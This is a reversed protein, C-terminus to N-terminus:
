ESPVKKPELRGEAADLAKQLAEDPKDAWRKLRERSEESIRIVPM